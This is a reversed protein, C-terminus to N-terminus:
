AATPNAGTRRRRWVAATVILGAGIVGIAPTWPTEPAQVAPAGSANFCCIGDVELPLQDAEAQANTVAAQPRASAFSYSGVEELLSSATPAGVDAANVTISITCPSSASPSAPCTISG